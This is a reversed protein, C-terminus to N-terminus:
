KLKWPILPVDRCYAEYQDGLEAILRKEELYTGIIFYGTLIVRTLIYVDTINGFGWIFAIGASYWPHRVHALIGDTHFPLPTTQKNKKANKWQTIGLFFQMDYVQSGLYFMLLGYILLSGQVLSIALNRELLIHQPISYHYWLVPLLTILSFAAYVVRYVGFKNKLIKEAYRHATRCILLSHM